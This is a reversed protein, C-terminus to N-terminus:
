EKIIMNVFNTKNGSIKLSYVGPCFNTIDVLTKEETLLQSILIRGGIDSIQMNAQLPKSSVINVFNTTPNPYVSINIDKEKKDISTIVPDFAWFDTLVGVSNIGIGIYGLDDISFGIAGSRKIVANPVVFDTWEDTTPDYVGFDNFYNGSMPDNGFGVYAKNDIVFSIPANRSQGPFDQIRSWHNNTPNYKWFDKETSYISSQGAGFYGFGDVSFATGFARSNGEFSAKPKWVNQSPLYMYMDYMYNNGDGNSGGVVFASDGIVFARAGYRASGPFDAKRQWHNTYPSYEWLETSCDLGPDAGLCVYIKGNAVFSTSEYLGVGPFDAKQSWLNNLPDYEWFDTFMTFNVTVGIGTYGKGNLSCGFTSRRGYNYMSAMQTWQQSYTTTQFCIALVFGIILKKM